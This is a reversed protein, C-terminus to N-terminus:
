EVGDERGRGIEVRVGVRGSGRAEGAESGGGRRTWTRAQAKEREAEQENRSRASRRCLPSFHSLSPLHPSHPLPLPSLHVQLVSSPNARMLTLYLFPVCTSQQSVQEVLKALAKPHLMGTWTLTTVEGKESADLPVGWEEEEDAGERWELKDREGLQALGAWERYQDWFLAPEDVAKRFAGSSTRQRKAFPTSPPISSSSPVRISSLHHRTLTPQHLTASVSTPFSLPQPTGTRSRFLPSRKLSFRFLPNSAGADDTYCM